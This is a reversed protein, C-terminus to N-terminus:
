NSDTDSVTISLKNPLCVIPTSNSCDMGRKGQNICIKDPCDAHVVWIQNNEIKITNTGGTSSTVTFEQPNTLNVTKIVKGDSSITATSASSNDFILFLSSIIAIFLIIMAFINVNFSKM